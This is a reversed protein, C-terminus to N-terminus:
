PFLVYPIKLSLRIGVADSAGDAAKLHWSVSRRVVREFAHLSWLKERLPDDIEAIEELVLFVLLLSDSYLASALSESLPLRPSVREIQLEIDEHRGEVGFGLEDRFLDPLRSQDFLSSPVYCLMKYRYRESSRERQDRIQRYRGFVDLDVPRAACSPFYRQYNQTVADRIWESNSDSFTKEVTSCASGYRLRTFEDWEDPGLREM